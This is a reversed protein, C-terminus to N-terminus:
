GGPYTYLPAGAKVLSEELVSAVAEWGTELRNVHFNPREEIFHKALKKCVEAVAKEEVETVGVVALCVETTSLVQLLQINGPVLENQSRWWRRYAEEVKPFAKVIGANNAVANIDGSKNVFVIVSRRDATQPIGADGVKLNKVSGLMFKNM